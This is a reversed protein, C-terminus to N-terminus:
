LARPLGHCDGFLKTIETSFWCYVGFAPLLHCGPPLIRPAGLMSIVIHCRIPLPSCKKGTGIGDARVSRIERHNDAPGLLRADTVNQLTSM